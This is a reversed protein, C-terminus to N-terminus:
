HVEPSAVFTSRKVEKKDCTILRTRPKEPCGFAFPQRITQSVHLDTAFRSQLKSPVQSEPSEQLVSTPNKINKPSRTPKHVYNEEQPPNHVPLTGTPQLLHLPECHLTLPGLLRCTPIPTSLSYCSMAPCKPTSKVLGGIDETVKTSAAQPPYKASALRWLVM